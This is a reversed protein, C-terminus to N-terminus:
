SVGCYSEGNIQKRQRQYDASSSRECGARRGSQARAARRDDARWGDVAREDAAGARYGGAAQLLPRRAVGARALDRRAPRQHGCLRAAAAGLGVHGCVGAAGVARRGHARLVFRDGAQRQVEARLHVAPVAHEAGHQEVFLRHLERRGQRALVVWLTPLFVLINYTGLSIIPLIMIAWSMGLHKVVRSVVFLQLLLGFINVLTFYKSYFDGILQEETLGDNQGQAVLNVATDKVISGLIYEGTSNVWNVLMLMLAMLLLYRTRFVMAFANSGSPKAAAAAAVKRAAPPRRASERRQHPQDALAARAPDGRRRLMLQYVGLPEILRDAIRAGAVAGLSAGFGVIVFLREGEEKTYVDNAFAWFQAVIMLSFIGIWVFFVVALPVGFQALVYFIM